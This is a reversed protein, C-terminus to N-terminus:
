STGTEALWTTVSQVVRDANLANWQQPKIERATATLNRAMFVPVAIQMIPQM